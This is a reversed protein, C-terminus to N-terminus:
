KLVKKMLELGDNNLYSTADRMLYKESIRKKLTAADKDLKIAVITKNPYDADVMIKANCEKLHERLTIDGKYLVEKGFDFYEPQVEIQYAKMNHFHHSKFERGSTTQCGIRGSQIVNGKTSVSPISGGVRPM